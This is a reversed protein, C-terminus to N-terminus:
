RAEQLLTSTMAESLTDRGAPADTSRWAIHGDPRILVAGAAGIAYATLFGTVNVLGAGGVRYADIRINCALGANAAQKLWEGGQPGTLLTFGSGILDLTSLGEGAGDLWVHPARAGPAASQVYDSYTDAVAPPRTGDSIIADSDYFAGFEIGLHNGYRRSATVVDDTSLGSEGGAAAARNIRVVNMSNELSQSTIQQAVDRREDQYTQVLGWSAQGKAFYALKWMVNHMGQIGTNVGLGGTPPFQHAADGCVVVRGVVFRDVVTANLKWFGISLVNVDLDAVGSAARVWQAARGKTFVEPDWNEETVSIQCLWRGKADLPQLVGSAEPNSVFLLVGKRDGIHSEIDARFYCNVLHSLDKAGELTLGLERRILSGAGDDAVLAVGKLTEVSGTDRNRIELEVETDSEAGGSVLRTAEVGFRLDVLGSARAADVLIEEILEQSSMVPEAPSVGFGPGEFGKSEISGFQQGTASQLFRIPSKWGPPTDIARLRQYVATGWGRAIEMTRTNFNRTKPHWSTTPHKEIVISRVGFRALELSAALGIPGAGVILVPCPDAITM